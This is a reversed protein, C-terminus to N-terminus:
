HGPSHCTHLCREKLCVPDSHPVCLPVAQTRCCPPCPSQHEMRTEGRNNGDKEEGLTGLFLVSGALFLDAIDSFMGCTVIEFSNFFTVNEMIAWRTPVIIGRKKVM